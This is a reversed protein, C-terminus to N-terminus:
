SLHGTKAPLVVAHESEDLVKVVKQPDNSAPFHSIDAHQNRMPYKGEVTVHLEFKNIREDKPSSFAPYFIPYSDGGTLENINKNIGSMTATFQLQSISISSQIGDGIAKFSAIEADRVEKQKRRNETRDKSMMWVEGVMLMLFAFVWISKERPGPEKRFTVAAAMFALVTIFFGPCFPWQLCEPWWTSM